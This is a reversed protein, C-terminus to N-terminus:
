GNATVPLHIFPLFAMGGATAAVSIAVSPRVFRIGKLVYGAILVVNGGVLAMLWGVTGYPRVLVLALAFVVVWNLLNIWARFTQQGRATLVIGWSSAYFRVFFLLGFWPLLNALEAFAQGFMVAVIAESFVALVLGFSLGVGLFAIQVLRSEKEYTAAAGGGSMASARPLFVNGLVTAAQAGGAFLRMGAQYIGVAAPGLFGNLVVSDIQGLLSQLGYDGAYALTARIRTLGDRIAGPRLGAFFRRQANWTMWLVLVRSVLYAAATTLADAHVMLAALVILCQVVATAAALQTESAFRNTARFGVNFVETVCDILVAFLMLAFVPRGSPEVWPLSALTALVVGGGLLLRATLVDGLLKRAGMPNAGLEKLLYPGFGFNAILALLTAVSLWFMVVGFAEPGLFRAMLVFTLMGFGLRLMVSAGMFAINRLASM